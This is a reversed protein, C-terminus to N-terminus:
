SAVATAPKVPRPQPKRPAEKDTAEVPRPTEEKAPKPEAREIRLSGDKFAHGNFQEIFSDAVEDTTITLFGFGRCKGTKRDTILKLTSAEAVTQFVELVEERTVTEPLGGVYIRITM